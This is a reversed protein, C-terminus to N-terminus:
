APRAPEDLVARVKALLAALAFPKQLFHAGSDLVVHQGVAEDTYGSMFLVRVGPCAARVRAALENGRMQPLIVDTMLLDVRGAAEQAAALGEEPTGADIVRYGGDELVERILSRLGEEDEVLVITEAGGQAAAVAVPEVAAAVAEDVRPLYIKFTTGHGAETYLDVHGGSQKVIGHVTALGLGTGKGRPKTTFFPEFIHAATAPDMGHGTDSVALRVHRGPRSGPHTRVYDADLDVNATELVLAGGQPMADRANVALNVLVQEMQGPDAWVTGLGAPASTVIRIDEGILRTLMSKVDEVTTSLDLVRPELVQRRSFALLQRTLSAGREAARLIQETRDHGPGPRPLARLLLESYGTIVNLLNNFDHAVGAALQGVAELKQSQLLQAELRTRETVDHAVVLRGARGGFDIDHAVVDVDIVRGDKLLHQWSGSHSQVGAAVDNRVALVARGVEDPPRIDTIRMALFEDRTYGYHAIAAANVELFRLTELDFVWMSHPNSEFLLRFSAERARLEREARRRAAREQSEGIARTLAPVLRDPREKAVFDTAGAKLADVAREEGLTATFFVFALEPRRRRTERLADHGNFSPLQFDSLVLDFTGEELAILFSERTDVRVVDWDLGAEHLWLSVLDSDTPEDEVHLLRTKM